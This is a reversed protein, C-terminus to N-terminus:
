GICLAVYIGKMLCSQQLIGGEWTKSDMLTDEQAKVSINLKWKFQDEDQWAAEDAPLNYYMWFEQFFLIYVQHFSQFLFCKLLSINLLPM